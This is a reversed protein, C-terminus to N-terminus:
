LEGLLRVLGSARLLPAEAGDGHLHAEVFATSRTQRLIRARARVLQGSGVNGMLDADIHMTMGARGLLLKTTMAVVQDALVLLMGGHVTGHTNCHEPLVRLAVDVSAAAADIRQWCGGVFNM